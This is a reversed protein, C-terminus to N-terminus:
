QASAKVIPDIRWSMPCSNGLEPAPFVMLHLADGPEQRTTPQFCQSLTRHNRSVVAAAEYSTSFLVRDRLDHHDNLTVPFNLKEDDSDLAPWGVARSVGHSLTARPRGSAPFMCSDRSAGLQPCRRARSLISLRSLFPGIAKPNQM